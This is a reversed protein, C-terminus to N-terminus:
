DSTGVCVVRVPNMYLACMYFLLLVSGVPSAGNVCVCMCSTVAVCACVVCCWGGM